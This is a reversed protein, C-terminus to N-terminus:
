PAVGPRARDEEDLPTLDTSVAIGPDRRALGWGTTVGPVGHVVVRRTRTLDLHPVVRRRTVRWLVRPRVFQYWRNDTGTDFRAALVRQGRQAHAVLAEPLPSPLNRVRARAFGLAWRPGTSVVGRRLRRTLRRDEADGIAFIRVGADDDYRRYPSPDVAILDIGYGRERAADVYRTVRGARQRDVAVVAIRGADPAPPAPPTRHVTEAVAEAPPGELVQRYVERLRDGVAARGYRARLRERAAPLDLAAWGDRLRRYAEVVVAPDETPPFLVGAVGDLGDLTESPGDSRAALVPTGTAVAEVMTIGFTETMSAHVLVDHERMVDAVQEPPVARRQTVRGALGLEAIRAALPRELAGSGVLTLTAAPEEAAVHAFAELLTQVGKHEIMRGVYLWRLPAPPPERRLAFRDFDVPNPVISLKEAHDPFQDAIQDRLSRSVCLVRDARALMQGYLVRAARRAFVTDLFTAHESVVLRADDRALAAAVVGGSHGTHAHVLPAEIRGTPLAARLRDIQAAAWSAHTGSTVQPVVVRTLEGLDTDEVTVGGTRRIERDLTVGRLKGAVGKPSSFWNETHLTAVTGVGDAVAETAARVFAGAFADNPSPYWPTVVAVDAAAPRRAGDTPTLRVDLGRFRRRAAYGLPTAEPDGLVLLEAHSLPGHRDLLLRRAQPLAAEPQAAALRHVTVGDAWGTDAWEPQDPVVLLVRAGSGALDAAYRRAASARRGGLVVYVISSHRSAM